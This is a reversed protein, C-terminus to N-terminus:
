NRRVPPNSRRRLATRAARSPVRAHRRMEDAIRAGVVPFSTASFRHSLPPFRLKKESRASSQAEVDSLGVRAVFDVAVGFFALWAAQNASSGGPEFAIKARRDSGKAMPGEPRVIVDMMLDGIVLIRPKASSPAKGESTPM